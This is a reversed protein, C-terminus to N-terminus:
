LGEGLNCAWCSLQAGPSTDAKEGDCGVQWHQGSSPEARSIGQQEEVM